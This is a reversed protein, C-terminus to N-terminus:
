KAPEQKTESVVCGSAESLWGGALWVVDNGVCSMMMKESKFYINELLWM